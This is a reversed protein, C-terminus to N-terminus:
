ARHVASGGTDSAGASPPSCRRTPRRVRWPGTRVAGFGYATRVPGDFADLRGTRPDERRRRRAAFSPARHGPDGTKTATGGRVAESAPGFPLPRSCRGDASRREEGRPRCARSMTVHGSNAPRRRVRRSGFASGATRAGSLVTGSRGGGVRRWRQSRGAAVASARREPRQGNTRARDPRVARVAPPNGHIRQSRRNGLGGLFALM